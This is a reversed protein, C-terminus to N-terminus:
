AANCQLPMASWVHRQLDRSVQQLVITGAGALLLQLREEAMDPDALVTVNRPDHGGVGAAAAAAVAAAAAAGRCAAAAGGQQQQQQQGPLFGTPVAAAAAGTRRRVRAQVRALDHQQLATQLVSALEPSRAAALRVCRFADLCCCHSLWDAQTHAVSAAGAHCAWSLALVQM